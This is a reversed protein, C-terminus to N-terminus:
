RRRPCPTRGGRVARRWCWAACLGCHRVESREDGRILLRKPAPQVNGQPIRRGSRQSRRFDELQGRNADVSFAPAPGGIDPNDRDGLAPVDASAPHPQYRASLAEGVDVVLGWLEADRQLALKLTSADALAHHLGGETSAPLVAVPLDREGDMGLIRSAPHVLRAPEPFCPQSPGIVEHDGLRRRLGESLRPNDAAPRWARSAGGAKGARVADNM